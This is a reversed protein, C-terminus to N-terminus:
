SAAATWAKRSCNPRSRSILSFMSALWAVSGPVAELVLKGVGDGVPEEAADVGVTAVRLVAPCRDTGSCRPRLQCRRQIGDELGAAEGGASEVEVGLQAALADRGVIQKVGVDAAHIGDGTCQQAGGRQEFAALDRAEDGLTVRGPYPASPRAM